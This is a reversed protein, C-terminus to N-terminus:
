EEVVTPAAAAALPALAALAEPTADRDDVVAQVAAAVEDLLEPEDTPLGGRAALEGCVATFAAIEHSKRYLKLKSLAVLARVIASDAAKDVNGALTLSHLAPPMAGAHWHGGQAFAYLIDCADDVVLTGIVDEHDNTGFKETLAAFVDEVDEVKFHSLTLLTAAVTGSTQKDALVLQRQAARRLFPDHRHNMLRMSSLISALQRPTTESLKLLVQEALAHCLKRPGRRTRGFARFLRVIHPLAFEGMHTEMWPQLKQLLQAGPRPALGALISACECVDALSGTEAFEGVNRGLATLFAVNRYGCAQSAELMTLCESVRFNPALATVRPGLCTLVDKTNPPPPQMRLFAETFQATGHAELAYTHAAIISVASAVPKARHPAVGFLKAARVLKVSISLDKDEEFTFKPFNYLMDRGVVAADEDGMVTQRCVAALDAWKNRILLSVREEQSMTPADERHQWENRRFTIDKTFDTQAHFRQRLRQVAEAKMM